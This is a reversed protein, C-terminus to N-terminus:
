IESEGGGLGQISPKCARVVMGFFHQPGCEPSWQVSRLIEVASSWGWDEFATKLSGKIYM